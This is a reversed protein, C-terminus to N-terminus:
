GGLSGPLPLAPVHLRLPLQPRRHAEELRVADQADVCRMLVHAHAGHCCEGRVHVSVLACRGLLSLLLACPFVVSVQM